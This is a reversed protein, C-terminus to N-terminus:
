VVRRLQLLELVKKNKISIMWVTIATEMIGAHLKGRQQQPRGMDLTKTTKVAKHETKKM